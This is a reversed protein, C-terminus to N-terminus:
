EHKTEKDGARRRKYNEISEGITRQDHPIWDPGEFYIWMGEEQNRPEPTRCGVLLFLLLITAIPM